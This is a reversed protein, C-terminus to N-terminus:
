RKPDLSLAKPKHTVWEGRLVGMGGSLPSINNCRSRGGAWACAGGCCVVVARVTDEVREGRCRHVSLYVV